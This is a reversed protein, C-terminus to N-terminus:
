DPPLWVANMQAVTEIISCQSLSCNTLVLAPSAVELGKTPKSLLRTAVRFRCRNDQGREAATKRRPLRMMKEGKISPPVVCAGFRM